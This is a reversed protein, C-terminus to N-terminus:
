PTGLFWIQQRDTQKDTTKKPTETLLNPIRLFFYKQAKQTGLKGDFRDAQRDFNQGGWHMTEETKAPIFYSVHSDNTSNKNSLFVCCIQFHQCTLM